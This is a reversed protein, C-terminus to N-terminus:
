YILDLKGEYANEYLEKVDTVLPLVPNATLAVDEMAMAALKGSDALNVKLEKLTRPIGVKEGLECAYRILAKSAFEDSQASSCLDIAQALEAYSSMVAKHNYAMVHPLLLANCVGHPLNYVGGLQHAMAHVLGLGANSFAMGALYQAYVMGNRAEVDSGDRYARLLYQNILTVAKMAASDTVYNRGNAVYAEVAHTLADMGTAATLKPPMLLMLMPDDVAIDPILDPDVIAVKRHTDDDTVVAYSTIESATGATTNIAILPIYKKGNESKHKSVALKIAKACDHPSGGGLSIIAECRDKLFLYTGEKVQSLKPNPEVKDFVCLEAGAKEVVSKVRALIESKAMFGDTVVLARHFHLRPIELELKNLADIGILTLKPMYFRFSNEKNKM